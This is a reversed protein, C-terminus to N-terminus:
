PKSGRREGNEKRRRNAEARRATEMEGRAVEIGAM